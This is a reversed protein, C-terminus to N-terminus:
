EKASALAQQENALNQQATDLEAIARAVEAGALAKCALWAAISIPPPALLLGNCAAFAAFALSLEITANRVEAQAVDVAKKAQEVDRRAKKVADCEGVCRAM